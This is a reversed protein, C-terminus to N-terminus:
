VPVMPVHRAAVYENPAFKQITAVPQKWVKRSM